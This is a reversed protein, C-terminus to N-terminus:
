PVWQSINFHSVISTALVAIYSHGVSLRMLDIMQDELDILLEVADLFTAACIQLIAAFGVFIFGLKKGFNLSKAPPPPPLHKRNHPKSGRTGSSGPPHSHKRPPPPPQSSRLPPPPALSPPPPTLLSPPPPTLPSAPPPPSPPPPPPPPSPIPPPPPPPSQQLQQQSDVHVSFLGLYLLVFILLPSEM